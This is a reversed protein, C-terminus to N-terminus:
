DFICVYTIYHLPYYILGRSDIWVNSQGGGSKWDFVVVCYVDRRSKSVEVGKNVEADAEEMLIILGM